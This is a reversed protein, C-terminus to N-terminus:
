VDAAEVATRDAGGGRAGRGSDVGRARHEAPDCHRSRCRWTIPPPCAWLRMTMSFSSGEHEDSLGLEKESCVMSDSKVGRLKAPKLTMKVQGAQHGDYLVSGEQAFVVKPGNALRGQGKLHFINPAGTVVQHPAVGGYDVDALVLRDANPHAKVEVIQAIVIKERDWVLSEHQVSNATEYTGHIAATSSPAVGYYEIHEVEMGALTLREALEEIPVTIDVYDKLWSIPVKM